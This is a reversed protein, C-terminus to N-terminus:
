NLKHTRTRNLKDTRKTNLRNTDKSNLEDTLENKISNTLHKKRSSYANTRHQPRWFTSSAQRKRPQKKSSDNLPELQEIYHTIEGTNEKTNRFTQKQKSNMKTTNWKSTNEIYKTFINSTKSKSIQTSDPKTCQNHKSAINNQWNYTHKSHNHTQIQPQTNQLTDAPSKINM